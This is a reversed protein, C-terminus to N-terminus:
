CFGRVQLVLDVKPALFVVVKKSRRKLEEAKAKILMVAVLTKGSGTPAVTLLDINRFGEVDVAPVDEIGSLYLSANDLLLPLAAIQVETPISFGQEAM